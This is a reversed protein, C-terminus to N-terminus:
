DKKKLEGMIKKSYAEGRPVLYEFNVTNGELRLIFFARLNGIRLRYSSDFGILKKCDTLDEVNGSEKVKRITDAVSKQMKGTLKRYSKQFNKSYRVNM